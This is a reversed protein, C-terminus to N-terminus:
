QKSRITAILTKVIEIANEMRLPRTKIAKACLHFAHPLNRISRSAWAANITARWLREEYIRKTEDDSLKAIKDKINFLAAYNGLAKQYAYSPNATAQETHRRYSVLTLPNYIIPGTLALNLYLSYDEANRSPNESFGGANFFANRKVMIVSPSGICNGFLLQQIVQGSPRASWLSSTQGIINGNSDIARYDCYTAVADPRNQLISAQHELKNEDWLDDSDIFAIYEGKAIKSGNNRAVGQGSNDQSLLSVHKKFGRVIEITGDDSGDDVVILEINQYSQNLVSNITQSIYLDSNYAPIVVSVLGKEDM